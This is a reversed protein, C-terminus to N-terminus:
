FLFVDRVENSLLKKLLGTVQLRIEVPLFAETHGIFDVEDPITKPVVTVVEVEPPPPTTAPGAEQQCASLGIMPLLLSVM